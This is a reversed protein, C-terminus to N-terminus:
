PSNQALKNVSFVSTYHCTARFGGRATVDYEARMNHERVDPAGIIGLMIGGAGTEYPFSQDARPVDLIRAKLAADAVAAIGGSMGMDTFLQHAVRVFASPEPDDTVTVPMRLLRFAAAVAHLVYRRNVAVKRGKASRQAIKYNVARLAGELAAVTNTLTLREMEPCCNLADLATKIGKQAAQYRKKQRAAILRSLEDNGSGIAIMALRWIINEDTCVRRCTSVTEPSLEFAVDFWEIYEGNADIHAPFPRTPGIRWSRRGDAIWDGRDAESRPMAPPCSDVERREPTTSNAPFPVLQVM